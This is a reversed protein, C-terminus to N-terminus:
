INAETDQDLHQFEEQHWLEFLKEKDNRLPIVELLQRLGTKFMSFERVENACFLSMGSQLGMIFVCQIYPFLKIMEKWDPIGHM